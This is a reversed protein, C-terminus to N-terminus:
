PAEWLRTGDPTSFLIHRTQWQTVAYGNDDTMVIRPTRSFADVELSLMMTTNSGPAPPQSLTFVPAFATQSFSQNQPDPSTVFALRTSISPVTQGPAYLDLYPLGRDETSGLVAVIEGSPNTVAFSSATLRQGPRAQGMILVSAAALLILLGAIKLRRNERELCTLREEISM